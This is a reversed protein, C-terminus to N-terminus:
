ITPMGGTVQVTAGSIYSAEPSALLVYAPALEAPQGARGIPSQSGFEKVKEAEFSGVILPTWIPGPAVCNVRIGKPAWLQALTATFNQIAAKTLTYPLLAANPTYANVSTTNIV